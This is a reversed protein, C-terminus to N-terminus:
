VGVDDVSVTSSIVTVNSAGTLAASGVAINVTGNFPSVFEGFFTVTSRGVTGATLAGSQGRGILTSANTVTGNSFRTTALCNVGDAGANVLASCWVRYRRGSVLTYPNSHGMVETINTSVINATTANYDIRGGANGAKFNGTATLTGTATVNGGTTV